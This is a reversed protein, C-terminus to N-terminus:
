AKDNLAILELVIYDCAGCGTTVGTENVIQELTDVNNTLLAEIKAQTTGTCHCIVEEKPNNPRQKNMTQYNSIFQKIPLHQAEM